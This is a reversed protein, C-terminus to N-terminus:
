NIPKTKPLVDYVNKSILQDGGKGIFKIAIENLLLYNGELDYIVVTKSTKNLISQLTHGNEPLLNKKYTRQM